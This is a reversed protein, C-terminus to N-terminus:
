KVTFALERVSANDVSVKVKYAGPPFTTTATLSFAVYKERAADPFTVDATDIPSFTGKGEKDYWWQAQVGTGKAPAKVLASVYLVKTGAPFETLNSLPAKTHDDVQDTLTVSALSAPEKPGFLGCGAALSAVLFLAITLCLARIKM